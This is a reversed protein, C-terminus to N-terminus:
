SDGVFRKLVTDPFISQFFVWFTLTRFTFLNESEFPEPLRIFSVSYLIFVPSKPESPILGQIFLASV